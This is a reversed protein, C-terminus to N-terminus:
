SVYCSIMIFIAKSETEQSAMMLTIFSLCTQGGWNVMNGWADRCDVM